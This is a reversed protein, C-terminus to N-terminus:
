LLSVYLQDEQCNVEADGSQVGFPWPAHWGIGFPHRASAWGTCGAGVGARCSGNIAFSVVTGAVPLPAYYAM